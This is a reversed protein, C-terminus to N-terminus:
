RGLTVEIEVFKRSDQQAELAQTTLRALCDAQTETETEPPATPSKKLDGSCGDGSGRPCCEGVFDVACGSLTRLADVGKDM